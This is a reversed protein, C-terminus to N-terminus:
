SVAFLESNINLFAEDQADQEGGPREGAGEDGGGGGRRGGVM